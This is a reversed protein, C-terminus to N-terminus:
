RKGNYILDLVLMDASYMQNFSISRRFYKCQIVVINPYIGIIKGTDYFHERYHCKLNYGIYVEPYQRLSTIVTKKDM